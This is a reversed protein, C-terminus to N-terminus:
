QNIKIFDKVMSVFTAFLFGLCTSAWEKLPGDVSGNRVVLYTASGIIAICVLITLSWGSLVVVKAIDFRESENVEDSTLSRAARDQDRCGRHDHQRDSGSPCCGLRDRLQLRVERYGHCIRRITSLTSHGLNQLQASKNEPAASYLLLFGRQM